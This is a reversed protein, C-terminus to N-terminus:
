TEFKKLLTQIDRELEQQPGLYKKYIEGEPDIIFLTPIYQIGGFDRDVKGDPLLVPYNIKYYQAFQNLRPDRDVSIGLIMVKQHSYKEFLKELIPIQVRCPPCRIAWFDLIVVRGRFDSLRVTEGQLSTLSFDPATTKGAGSKKSQRCASSGGGGVLILAAFLFLFQKGRDSM